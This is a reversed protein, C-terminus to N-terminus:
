LTPTAASGADRQEFTHGEDRTAFTFPTEREGDLTRVTYGEAAFILANERLHHGCFRLTGYPTYVESVAAESQDRDCRDALTLALTPVPAAAPATLTEM